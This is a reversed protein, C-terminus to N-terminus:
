HQRMYTAIIGAEQVLTELEAIVATHVSRLRQSCIMARNLEMALPFLTNDSKVYGGTIIIRKGAGVIQWYDRNLQWLQKLVFGQQGPPLNGVLEYLQNAKDFVVEKFRGDHWNNAGALEYQQRPTYTM